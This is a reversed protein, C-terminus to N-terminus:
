SVRYMSYLRKTSYNPVKSSWKKGVQKTLYTKTYSLGKSSDMNTFVQFAKKGKIGMALGQAVEHSADAYSRIIFGDVM